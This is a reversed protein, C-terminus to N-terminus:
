KQIREHGYEERAAEELAQLDKVIGVVANICEQKTGTFLVRNVGYISGYAPRECKIAYTLVWKEEDRYEWGHKPSIRARGASITGDTRLDAIQRRLEAQRAKLEALKEAKTM